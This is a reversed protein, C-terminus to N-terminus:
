IQEAQAGPPRGWLYSAVCGLVFVAVVLLVPGSDESLSGVVGATLGGALVATWAGDGGVPALLRFRDRV